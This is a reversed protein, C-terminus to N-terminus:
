GSSHALSVDETAAAHLRPLPSVQRLAAAQTPGLHHVAHRLPRHRSVCWHASFYVGVYKGDLESVNVKVIKGDRKALLDQGFLTAFDVRETM